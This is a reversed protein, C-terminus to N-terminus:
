SPTSDLLLRIKLNAAAGSANTVFISTVDTGLVFDDESDTDWDYPHDAVLLLTDDPTSGDNTELTIAQDSTIHISQVQDVDIGIVIELDTTSDPISRDLNIEMEATYTKKTLVQGGDNKLVWSKEHTAM